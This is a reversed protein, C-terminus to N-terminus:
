QYSGGNFRYVAGLNALHAQVSHGLDPTRTTSIYRYGLSLAYNEAFNYTLGGTAQYAFASNSGTFNTASFPGASDLKAQVWAYGIGGGLFPQLTTSLVPWDYYVNALGLLIQEYGNVGTQQIENFNFKNINSQMYTFEGEYRMLNSKLGLNGGANFGSLQNVNSRTVGWNTVSINNPIYAYGGFIQSYPGDIPAAALLAQSLLLAAIFILIRM